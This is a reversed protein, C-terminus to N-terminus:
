FSDLIHLEKGYKQGLEKLTAIDEDSLKSQLLNRVQQYEESSFSDKSGVRYLFSIEDTSFNKLIIIGATLLDTKEIPKNIKKQVGTVIGNNAASVGGQTTGPSTGSGTDGNTASGDASTGAGGDPLPGLDAETFLVGPKSLSSVVRDLQYNVYIGASLLVIIIIGVAIFIKQKTAM